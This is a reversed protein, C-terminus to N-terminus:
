SVLSDRRPPLPSSGVALNTRGRAEPHDALVLYFSANLEPLATRSLLPPPASVLGFLSVPFFDRRGQGDFEFEVGTEEQQEKGM